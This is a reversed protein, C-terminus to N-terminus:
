KRGRLLALIEGLGKELNKQGKELNAMRAEAAASVPATSSASALSASPAQMKVLASLARSAEAGSKAMAAMNHGVLREFRNGHKHEPDSPARANARSSSACGALRSEDDDDWPEDFDVENVRQPEGEDGHDSDSDLDKPTEVERSCSSDISSKGKAKSKGKGATPKVVVHAINSKDKGKGGTPEVVAHAPAESGLGTLRRTDVSVAGDSGWIEFCKAHLDESGTFRGPRSGTGQDGKFRDKLTSIRAGIRM